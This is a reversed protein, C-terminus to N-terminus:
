LTIFTLFLSVALYLGGALLPEKCSKPPEKESLYEHYAGLKESSNPAIAENEEELKEHAKGYKWLKRHTYAFLNFAGLNAALRFGGLVLPIMSGLFLSNIIRNIFLSDHSFFLYLLSIFGGILLHFRFQKFSFDSM